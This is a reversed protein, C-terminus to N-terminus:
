GRVHVSVAYGSRPSWRERVWGAYRNRLSFGAPACARDYAALTTVPVGPPLHAHDLGFGAVLLGEPRVHAALRDLAQYLTGPNLLPVVNGAMLALDFAQSRLYLEALDQHIFHTAPDRDRAAEVLDLDADVGVCHFGLRTLEIAVRGTGCGADLVRAPPLHLSAVFRAEAHIDSRENDLQDFVRQYTADGGHGSSVESWRTRPDAESPM